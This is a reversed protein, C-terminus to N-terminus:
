NVNEQEELVLDRSVRYGMFEALKDRKKESCNQHLNLNIWDKANKEFLNDRLKMDMMNLYIFKIAPFDRLVHQMM